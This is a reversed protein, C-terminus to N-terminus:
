YDDAWDDDDSVLNIVSDSDSELKIPQKADGYLRGKPPTRGGKRSGELGGLKGFGGNGPGLPEKGKSSMGNGQQEKTSERPNGFDPLGPGEGVSGSTSSGAGGAAALRRM